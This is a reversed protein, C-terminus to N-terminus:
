DESERSKQAQEADGGGGVVDSHLVFSHSDVIVIGVITRFKSHRILIRIKITIASYYNNWLFHIVISFCVAHRADPVFCEIVAEIKGGEGDGIAHRVDSIKREILTCSKGRYGDWIAHRCDSIRCERISM